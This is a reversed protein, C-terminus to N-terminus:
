RHTLEPILARSFQPARMLRFWGALGLGLRDPKPDQWALLVAGLLALTAVTQVSPIAKNCLRLFVLDRVADLIQAETGTALTPWPPPRHPDLDAISAFAPGLFTRLFGGAIDPDLFRLLRARHLRHIWAGVLGEPLAVSVRDSGATPGALLGAISAGDAALALLLAREQQVQAPEFFVARPPLLAAPVAPATSEQSHAHYCCPDIGARLGGETDIVVFPFQRCTDPKAESGFAAHIRCLGDQAVFVCRAQEHRLRGDVVPDPVGLRRGSEYVREREGDDPVSVLVSECCGGCGDCLHRLPKLTRCPPEDLM